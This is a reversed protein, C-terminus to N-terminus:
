QGLGALSSLRNFRTSQDNNFRNYANQYENSAFDQGYQALAKMTAGSNLGGRAAASRELAKQGEAMRFDYGPDKQFDGMTFTKQFDDGQMKGLAASGADRWPQQDQRQEEFMQKQMANSANTAGQQANKARDMSSESGIDIGTVDEFAGSIKGM